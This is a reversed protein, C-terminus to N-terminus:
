KTHNGNIPDEIHNNCVREPNVREREPYSLTCTVNNEGMISKRAARAVKIYIYAFLGTIFM